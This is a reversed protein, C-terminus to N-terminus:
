AFEYGIGQMLLPDVQHNMFVDVKLIGDGLYRGESQIRERLWHMYMGDRENM